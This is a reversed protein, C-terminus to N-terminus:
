IVGTNKKVWFDMYAGWRVDIKGVKAIGNHDMETFLKFPTAGKKYLEEFTAQENLFLKLNRIDKNTMTKWKTALKKVLKASASKATSQFGREESDTIYNGIKNSEDDTKHVRLLREGDGRTLVANDLQLTGPSAVSALKTQSSGTSPSLAEAQRALLIAAALLMLYHRYVRM